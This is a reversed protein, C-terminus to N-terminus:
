LGSPCRFERLEALAANQVMEKRAPLVLQLAPADVIDVRVHWCQDAGVESVSPM